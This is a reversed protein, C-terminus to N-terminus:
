KKDKAFEVSGFLHGGKDDHQWTGAYRNGSFVVRASFTGLGIITVNDLVMVPTKGAWMIDIPVPFIANTKGYNIRANIIWQDGKVYEVSQISYAEKKAKSMDQGDVTFLGNLEAGTLLKKLKTHLPNEAEAEKKDDKNSQLQREPTILAKDDTSRLAGPGPITPDIQANALSCCLLLPTLIALRLSVQM